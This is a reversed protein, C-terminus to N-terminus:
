KRNTALVSLIQEKSVGTVRVLKNRGSHGSLIEISSKPVALVKALLARCAENAAGEVPPAKVRVRLAGDYFGAVENKSAKPQVHMKFLM